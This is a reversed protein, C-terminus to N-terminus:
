ATVYGDEDPAHLVLRGQEDYHFTTLRGAAIPEDLGLATATKNVTWATLKLLLEVVQAPSFHELTDARADAGFGAPYTLFADTLRLAVKQRELLGSREYDLVLPM